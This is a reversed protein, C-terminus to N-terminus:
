VSDPEPAKPVYTKKDEATTEVWPVKRVCSLPCGIIHYYFGYEGFGEGHDATIIVNEADLNNLLLEVEDLVFRLNDLYADWVADHDLHGKQLSGFPSFLNPDDVLPFPDHPYLYHIIIRSTSTNRNVAIARDTTYRPHTRTGIQPNGIMWESTDDFEMKSLDEFYGFGDPNVVDYKSPGFPIPSHGTDGEQTLVRDTYTNGTVYSTQSIDKEYRSNFTHNMWEFSTSGVSTINDITTLFEYENSVTKLADVRCSDLVILVDWDRELVPTGWPIRKTITLLLGVYIYYIPRFLRAYLPKDEKLYSISQSVWKSFSITM